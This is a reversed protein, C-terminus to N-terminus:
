RQLLHLVSQTANANTVQHSLDQVVATRFWSGQDSQSQLWRKFQSEPAVLAVVDSAALVFGRMPRPDVLGAVGVMAGPGWVALRVGRTPEVAAFREIEGSVVVVFGMAGHGVTTLHEGAQWRRVEMEAAVSALWGPDAKAFGPTELLVSSIKAPTSPLPRGVSLPGPLIEVLHSRRGLEALEEALEHMRAALSHCALRELEWAVPHQETRLAEFASRSLTHVVV